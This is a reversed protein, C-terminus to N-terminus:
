SLLNINDGSKYSVRFVFSVVHSELQLTSIKFRYVGLLVLSYFTAPNVGPPSSVQAPIIQLLLLPLQIIGVAEQQDEEEEEWRNHDRQPHKLRNM